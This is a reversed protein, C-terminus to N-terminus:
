VESARMLVHVLLAGAYTAFLTAALARQLLTVALFM